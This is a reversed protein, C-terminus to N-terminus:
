RNSIIKLTRQMENYVNMIANDVDMGPKSSIQHPQTALAIQASVKGAKDTENCSGGFYTLIGKKKCYLVSRIVEDINGVDTPKINIMDAAHSDAWEIIDEYNNAYEDVVLIVRSGQEKLIKKLISFEEIQKKKSTSDIPMEIQLNYPKVAEEIKLIYDKVKTLDGNFIRGIMGYTDFHISPRYQTGGFRHIRDVIWKAYNYLVEGKNGIKERTNILGQPLVDARKMIAKDVGKNRDDGTQIHIPVIKTPLPLNYEQCVIETMTRHKNKAVAGLIAQTLGYLFAPDLKEGEYRLNGIKSSMKKFDTIEIGEIDKNIYNDVIDVGKKASFPEARGGDGSYQSSCCDGYVYDGNELILIISLSEGPMRISSYGRTKPEGLYFHGDLVALERIAAKDDSYYGTLGSSALIKSVKL